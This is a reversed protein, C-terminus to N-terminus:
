VARQSFRIPAQRTLAVANDIGYIFVTLSEAKTLEPLPGQRTVPNLPIDIEANGSADTTAVNLLPSSPDSSHSFGVRVNPLSVDPAEQFALHVTITMNM